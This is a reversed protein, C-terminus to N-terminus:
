RHPEQSVRAVAEDFEAELAADLGRCGADVVAVCWRVYAEIKHPPWDSPPDAAM